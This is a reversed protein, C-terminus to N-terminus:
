RARFGFIGVGVYGIGSNPAATHRIERRKLWADHKVLFAAASDRLFADYEALRTMDFREAFVVRQLQGIQKQRDRTTLNSYCTDIIGELASLTYALFQARQEGRPLFATARMRVRGDRTRGVLGHRSLIAMVLSVDAGPLAQRVLSAFSPSRGALKLSRANGHEDLYEPETQWHTLVRSYELVEPSPMALPRTARHKRLSAGLAQTLREPTVGARLLLWVLQDLTKPWHRAGDIRKIDGGASAAKKRPAKRAPRVTTM